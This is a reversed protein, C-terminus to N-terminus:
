SYNIHSTSINIIQIKIIETFSAENCYAFMWTLKSACCEKVPCSVHNFYHQLSKMYRCDISCSSQSIKIQRMKLFKVKTIKCWFNLSRQNFCGALLFLYWTCSQWKVLFSGTYIKRCQNNYVWNFRAIQFKTKKFEFLNNERPVQCRLSKKLAWLYKLYCPQQTKPYWSKQHLLLTQQLCVCYQIEGYLILVKSIVVVLSDDSLPM